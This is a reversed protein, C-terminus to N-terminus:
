SSCFNLCGLELADSFTSVDFCLWACFGGRFSNGYDHAGVVVQVAMVRRGAVADNVIDHLVTKAGMGGQIWSCAKGQWTFVQIKVLFLTDVVVIWTRQAVAGLARVAARACATQGLEIADPDATLAPTAAVDVPPTAVPHSRARVREAVM